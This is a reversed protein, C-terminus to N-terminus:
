LFLRIIPSLHTKQNFVSCSFNNIRYNSIKNVGLTWQQQCITCYIFIHLPYMRHYIICRIKNSRLVLLYLFFCKLLRTFSKVFYNFSIDSYPTGSYWNHYMFCRLPIGPYFILFTKSYPSQMNSKM